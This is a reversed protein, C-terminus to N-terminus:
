LKSELNLPAVTQEHYSLGDSSRKASLDTLGVSRELIKGDYIYRLV